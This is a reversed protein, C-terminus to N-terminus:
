VPLPAAVQCAEFEAEGCSARILWWSRVRAGPSSVQSTWAPATTDYHEGIRESLVLILSLWFLLHLDTWM